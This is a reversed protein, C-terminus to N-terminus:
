LSEIRWLCRRGKSGHQWEGMQNGAKVRTDACRGEDVAAAEDDEEGNEERHMLPALLDAAMM